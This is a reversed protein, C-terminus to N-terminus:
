RRAARRADRRRPAALLEATELREADIDHLAIESEALEPFALIDGLLNRTFEVSGAGIFAIKPMLNRAYVSRRDARNYLRLSSGARSGSGSSRGTFFVGSMTAAIAAATSTVADDAPARGAAQVLGDLDREPVGLRVRRLLRDVLEDPLEVLRVRADDHM